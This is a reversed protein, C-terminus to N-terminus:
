VGGGGESASRRIEGLTTRPVPRGRGSDGGRFRTRHIPRGVRGLSRSENSTAPLPVAPDVGRFGRVPSGPQSVSGGLRHRHSGGTVRSGGRSGGRLYFPKRGRAREGGFGM